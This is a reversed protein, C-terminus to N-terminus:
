HAMLFSDRVRCCSRYVSFGIPPRKVNLKVIATVGDHVASDSVDELLIRLSFWALNSESTEPHVEIPGGAMSTLSAEKVSTQAAPSIELLIGHLVQKPGGELRVEVHDGPQLLGVYVEDESIMADVMRRGHGIVAVEDGQRVWTGPTELVPSLVVQGDTPAAMTLSQLQKEVEQHRLEHQRHQEIAAMYDAPQQGVVSRVKFASGIVESKLRDADALLRDSSLQCIVQGSAVQQGEEVAVSELRGDADAHLAQQFEHRVVGHAATMGPSPMYFVLGIGGFLGFTAVSLGRLRCPELERATMTYRVFKGLMQWFFSVFFVLAVPLGIVPLGAILFSIGVIVTVKYIAISCGFVALGISERRSRAVSPSRLGYLLRKAVRKWEHLANNRLEPMGLLDALAYYGDFKMLPNINFGITVVTALMLAQHAAARFLSPGSLCWLLLAGMAIMSEFYMGALAVVIRQHRKQFSWAASADVYACPTGVIFFMGMEPVRGGFYRCAYAHGFEHFGKLVVLLVGMLVASQAASTHQFPDTLDHWHQWVFIGSCVMAIVWIAAATRSFLPAALGLTRRLFADPSWLPMRHFLLGAVKARRESVRKQVARAHLIHGTDIPLSVLGLRNLQVIWAYYSESESEELVGNRVLGNFCEQLTQSEQIGAFIQYDTLSLRHHKFTVVDHVVYWVESHSVQRTIELDSRRVANLEALRSYLQECAADASFLGPNQIRDPAGM